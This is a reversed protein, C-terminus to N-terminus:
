RDGIDCRIGGGVWSIGGVLLMFWERQVNHTYWSAFTHILEGLISM